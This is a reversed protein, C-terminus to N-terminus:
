PTDPPTSQQSQPPARRELEGFYKKNADHYRRPLQNEDVGEEFGEVIEAVIQSASVQSEGVVQPGDVLM